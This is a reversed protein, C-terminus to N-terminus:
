ALGRMKRYGWESTILGLLLLFVIPMDWLDKRDVVTNGVDTFVIDKALDNVKDGAYFRGGTEDAIRRLLPARMEAGFYETTLDGSTIYSPDSVISDTGIKTRVDVRYLGKETPTFAAKYEGDRTVSWELPMESVTGSPSTVRATAEANNVKLYTRDSIEADLEVPDGPAVQDGAAAVMVRSPVDNVLWRLMQRWFSEFTMDELTVTAEMQWMWSDQVPFVITKGRGYRQFALVIEKDGGKTPTGNLLVSAGPKARGIRNVSSVAPMTKWRKASLSEAEAIQTAAHIAGPVTVDVKLERFFEGKADPTIAFDVPLVEAVPTGGYGGEGLARRGGLALLGGGRESVFDAIMRLQDGTFFSAEISGLIIGKYAFLEDRTKPFGAVLDLSDDVSFRRFQDKALRQLTVLQVNKDERLARRIFPMESRPEGEIYLIKERRDSVNVIAKQTNNQAVMEGPQPPIRFSLVRAGAETTPVRVRVPVAEGDGSLTVAQTSVIRGGDEVILQVKQGNYGRQAILVDVVLSAGQLVSRPAEVRSLEIDKTFRERGVGVTFVPVHRAGLSLVADTLSGRSNDAGDSVLVLGSLPVGTLEQRAAELAPGLQTRAGDYTLDGLQAVREGNGSFRFLRVVFKEALAKFMSSDPGGLLRRVAESRTTGDLDAIRMSRSDDVLVGVVNRQPVAESVILLPHLVAAVAIALAALRLTLLVARDRAGGRMRMRAYVILAPIAIALAVAVVIYTGLGAGLALRGKEFVVPRYKFLFEFLAELAVGVFVRQTSERHSASHWGIS